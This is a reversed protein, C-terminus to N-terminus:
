VQPFLPMSDPIDPSDVISGTAIWDDPSFWGKEEMERHLRRVDGYTAERTWM